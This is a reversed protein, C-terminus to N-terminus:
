DKRTLGVYSFGERRSKVGLRLNHGAREWHGEGEAGEDNMEFVLVDGLPEGEEAGEGRFKRWAARFEEQCRNECPVFAGEDAIWGPAGWTGWDAVASTMTGVADELTYEGCSHWMPVRCSFNWCGMWGAAPMWLEGWLVRFGVPLANLVLSMCIFMDIRPHSAEEKEAFSVRTGGDGTEKVEQVRTYICEYRHGVVYELSEWLAKADVKRAYEVAYRLENSPSKRQVSMFEGITPAQM